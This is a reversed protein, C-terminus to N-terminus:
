TKVCEGFFCANLEFLSVTMPLPSLLFVRFIRRILAMFRNFARMLALIAPELFAYNLGAAREFLLLNLAIM